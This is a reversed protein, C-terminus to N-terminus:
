EKVAVHMCKGKNVPMTKLCIVESSEAGTSSVSCFRKKIMLAVGAICILANWVVINTSTSPYQVDQLNPHPHFLFDCYVCNFSDMLIAM